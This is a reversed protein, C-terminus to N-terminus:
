EAVVDNLDAPVLPVLEVGDISALEALHARVLDLDADDTYYLAFLTGHM